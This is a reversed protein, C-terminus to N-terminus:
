EGIWEMWPVQNMLKPSLTEIKLVLEVVWMEMRYILIQRFTMGVMIIIWRNWVMINIYLTATWLGYGNSVDNKEADEGMDKFTSSGNCQSLTHRTMFGNGSSVGGNNYDCDQQSITHNNMSSNRGSTGGM